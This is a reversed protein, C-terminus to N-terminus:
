CTRGSGCAESNLPMKSPMSAMSGGVNLFIEADGARRVDNGDASLNFALAQWRCTM